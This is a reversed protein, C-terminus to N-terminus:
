LRKANVGGLIQNAAQEYTITKRYYKLMKTSRPLRMLIRGQSLMIDAISPKWAKFHEDKYIYWNSSYNQVNFGRMRCETYLNNYRCFTFAGKNIFFVMHGQGFRYSDPIDDFNNSLLKRNYLFCIRKIERHEALLHVDILNKPPVLNIRSM